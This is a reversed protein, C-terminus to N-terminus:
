CNQKQVKVQLIKWELYILPILYLDSNLPMVPEWNEMSHPLSGHSCTIIHTKKINLNLKLFRVTNIRFMLDTIIADAIEKPDTSLNGERANKYTEYIKVSTNRDIGNMTLFALAAQKPDPFTEPGMSTFMKAEDLTSGIMLDIDSCDGNQFVKLPHIPLTEGDILPRFEMAGTLKELYKNQAEIIEEPSIKQFDKFDRSKLNLIKM